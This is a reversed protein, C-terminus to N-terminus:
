ISILSGNFSVLLIGKGGALNFKFTLLMEWLSASSAKLLLENHAIRVIKRNASRVKMVRLYRILESLVSLAISVSALTEVHVTLALSSQMVSRPFFYDMFVYVLKLHRWINVISPLPKNCVVLLSIHWNSVTIAKRRRGGMRFQEIVKTFNDLAEKDVQFLFM